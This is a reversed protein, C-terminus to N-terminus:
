SENGMSKRHLVFARGGDVSAAALLSKETADRKKARHRLSIFRGHLAWQGM